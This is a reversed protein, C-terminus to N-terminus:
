ISNYAVFFAIAAPQKAVAQFRILFRRSVNIYCCKQGGSAHADAMVGSGRM